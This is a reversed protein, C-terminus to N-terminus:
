VAVGIKTLPGELHAYVAGAHTGKWKGDAQRIFTAGYHGTVIDGPEFEPKRHKVADEMIRLTLASSDYWGLRKLSTCLEDATIAEEGDIQPNIDSRRRNLTRTFIRMAQTRFPMAMERSADEALGLALEDETIVMKELDSM